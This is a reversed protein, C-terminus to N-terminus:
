GALAEELSHTRNLYPLVDTIVLVREVIESTGLVLNFRRRETEARRRTLVLANIISSDIFEVDSVDVILHDSTELTEVLLTSLADANGLDHEGALSVVAVGKEHWRVDVEPARPAKGNADNM